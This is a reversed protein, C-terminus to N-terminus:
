VTLTHPFARDSRASAVDPISALRRDVEGSGLQLLSTGELPRLARRVEAAVAPSAGRVTVTRIAFVSTERAGLYLLAACGVLAVAVLLSRGSPVLRALNPRPLARRQPFPIVGM